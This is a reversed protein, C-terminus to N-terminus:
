CSRPLGKRNCVQDEFAHPGRRPRANLPDTGRVHSGFCAVFFHTKAGTKARRAIMAGIALPAQFIGAKRYAFGDLAHLSVPDRVCTVKGGM